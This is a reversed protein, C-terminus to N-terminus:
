RRNGTGKITGVNCCSRLERLDNQKHHQLTTSKGNDLTFELERIQADLWAEHDALQLVQAELTNILGADTTSAATTTM